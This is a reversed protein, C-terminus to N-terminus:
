PMERTAKSRGCNLNHYVGIAMGTAPECYAKRDPNGLNVLAQQNTSVDFFSSRGYSFPKSYSTGIV